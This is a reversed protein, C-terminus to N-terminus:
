LPMSMAWLYAHHNEKIADILIQTANKGGYGPVPMLLAIAMASATVLYEIMTVGRQRKM